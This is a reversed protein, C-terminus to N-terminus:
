CDLFKALLTIEKPMRHQLCRMNLGIKSASSHKHKIEPHREEFQAKMVKDNGPKDQERCLMNTVVFGIVCTHWHVSTILRKYLGSPKIHKSYM